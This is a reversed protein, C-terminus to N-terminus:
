DEVKITLEVVRNRSANEEARQIAIKRLEQRQPHSLNLPDGYEAVRYFHGEAMVADSHVENDDDMRELRLHYEREM